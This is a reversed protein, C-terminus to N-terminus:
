PEIFCGGIASVITSTVYWNTFQGYTQCTFTTKIQTCLQWSTWTNTVTSGLPFGGCGDSSKDGQAVKLNQLVSDMGDLFDNFSQSDSNKSNSDFHFPVNIRSEDAIEGDNNSIPLGSSDQVIVNKNKVVPVSVEVKLSGEGNAIREGYVESVIESPTMSGDLSQKEGSNKQVEIVNVQASVTTSVLLISIFRLVNM